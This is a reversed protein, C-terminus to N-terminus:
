LRPGKKTRGLAALDDEAPLSLAAAVQSPFMLALEQRDLLEEIWLIRSDEICERSAWVQWLAFGTDKGANVPTRMQQGMACLCVGFDPLSGDRYNIRVIGKGGCHECM